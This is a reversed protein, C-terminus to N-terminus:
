FDPPTDPCAEILAKSNDNLTDLMEDTIEGLRSNLPEPTGGRLAQRGEATIIRTSSMMLTKMLEYAIDCQDKPKAQAPVVAVLAAALILLRMFNGGTTEPLNARKAGKPM